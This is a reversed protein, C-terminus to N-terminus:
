TWNSRLYPGQVLRGQIGGDAVDGARVAAMPNWSGFMNERERMRDEPVFTAKDVLSVGRKGRANELEGIVYALDFSAVIGFVLM